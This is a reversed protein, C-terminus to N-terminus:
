SAQRTRKRGIMIVVIHASTPVSGIANPHPRPRRIAGGARAQRHDAPQQHRLQQREVDRRHIVHVDLVRAQPQHALGFFFARFKEGCMPATAGMPPLVAASAVIWLLVATAILCWADPM